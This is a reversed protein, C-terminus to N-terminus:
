GRRGEEGRLASAIEKEWGALFDRYWAETWTALDADGAESLSTLEYTVEVETATPALARCVVEVTGTRLGPTVRAYRVRHRDPNWDVLLWLTETAPHSHTDRTTWATGPRATGDAPYHFHPEWGPAWLKEGVPTFLELARALEVPVRLTGSRRIHARAPVPPTPTPSHALAAVLLASAIPM